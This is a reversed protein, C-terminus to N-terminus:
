NRMGSILIAKLQLSRHLPHLEGERHPLYLLRPRPPLNIEHITLDWLQSYWIQNPWDPVVIIGIAKDFVIKQLVKSILAFPPFAYFDLSKWSISFANVGMAEPDHRYSFFNPLQANIRSAFLDLNPTFALSSISLEFADEDLKWEMMTEDRRSEFDAETNQIGPIHTASIWINKSTAWQWIEFIQQHLSCSMSSGMNNIAGKTASNDTKVLIHADHIHNCLSKLGFFVAKAELVNIHLKQESKDFAGGTSNGESM